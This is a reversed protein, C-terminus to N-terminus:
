RYLPRRKSYKVPSPLLLPAFYIETLGLGLNSYIKNMNTGKHVGKKTKHILHHFGCWRPSGWIQRLIGVVLLALLAVWIPVLSLSRLIDEVSVMESLTLPGLILFWFQSHKGGTGHPRQRCM